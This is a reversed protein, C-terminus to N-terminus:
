YPPGTGYNGPPFYDCVLLTDGTDCVIMGCGLQTTDRWVVQTYRACGSMGEPADCSNTAYDYRQGEDVWKAVLAAANWHHGEGVVVNEGFQYLSSRGPVCDVRRSGAYGKALDAIEQSWTLPEVGVKRREANHASLIYAVTAKARARQGDSTDTIPTCPPALLALVLLVTLYYSMHITM